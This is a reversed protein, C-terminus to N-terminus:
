GVHREGGESLLRRLKARARSLQSKSTGEDIGLREGIEAHTYGEIDHLVFVTRFGDSLRGIARMLVPRESWLPATDDAVLEMEESPSERVRDRLRERWCNVVFGNLWPKGARAADFSKVKEIARFWAEQVVDEAISRDGGALRLALGFMAAAASDYLARFSGESRDRAFAQLLM